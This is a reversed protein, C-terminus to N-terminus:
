LPKETYSIMSQNNELWQRVKSSMIANAVWKVIFIKM